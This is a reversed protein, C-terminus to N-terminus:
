LDINDLVKMNIGILTEIPCTFFDVPIREGDHTVAVLFEGDYEYVFSEGTFKEAYDLDDDIEIAELQYYKGTKFDRTGHSGHEEKYFYSSDIGHKLEVRNNGTYKILEITDGVCETVLAMIKDTYDYKEYSFHKNERLPKVPKKVFQEFKKIM